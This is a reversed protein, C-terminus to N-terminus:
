WLYIYKRNMSTRYDNGPFGTYKYEKTNTNTNTTRAPRRMAWATDGKDPYNTALSWDGGGGKECHLSIGRNTKGKEGLERRQMAWWWDEVMRRKFFCCSGGWYRLTRTRREWEVEWEVFLSKRGGYIERQLINAGGEGTYNKNGERSVNDKEVNGGCM